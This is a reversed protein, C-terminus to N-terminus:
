CWTKNCIKYKKNLCLLFVFIYNRLLCNLLVELSSKAHKQYGDGKRAVLYIKCTWQWIRDETINWKLKETQQQTTLKKHSSKIRCLLLNVIPCLPNDPSVTGSFSFSQDSTSCLWPGSTQIGIGEGDRCAEAKQASMTVMISHIEWPTKRFVNWMELLEWCPESSGQRNGPSILQRWGTLPYAYKKLLEWEYTSFITWALMVLPLLTSQIYWLLELNISGPDVCLNASGAQKCTGLSERKSM